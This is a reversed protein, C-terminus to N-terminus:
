GTAGAMHQQFAISLSHRLESLTCFYPDINALSDTLPRYTEGFQSLWQRFDDIKHETRRRADIFHYFISSVSMTDIAAAMEAPHGFSIASDFVVIQAQIFEFQQSALSWQFYDNEDLRDDIYELIELRLAELNQYATPDLIALQEALKADHLSHRIWSAFDNNYEREEFRPLLLNGWFHYYLSEQNLTALHERFEKLNHARQTTAIAILACDKLTFRSSPPTDALNDATEM